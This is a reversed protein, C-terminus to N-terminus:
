RSRPWRGPAGWGDGTEAGPRELRWVQLMAEIQEDTAGPNRRRLNQRMIEEGTAFMDLALRLREAEPDRQRSVWRLM